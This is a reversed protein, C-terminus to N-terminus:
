PTVNEISKLKTQWKLAIQQIQNRNITTLEGAKLLQKGAVWVDSVQRSNAAYVLHSIPNFIPQCNFADMSVAIIDAAKGVELSGIKNELGLARAGNITAMRLATKASVATPDDAITKGIMAASRMEGFMDLDNNSAGGDTGLCVNIGNDLLMQVPAYGSALKLNSEPCHTVHAGTAKLLELDSEDVQTMHVCQFRSNLIGLKHMRTLPRMDFEKMSGEIESRSEHMHMHIPLQHTQAIDSMKSLVNDTTTYPAHPAMTYSILEHDASQELTSKAKQLYEDENNAYANPFSMVILGISARLGVEKATNALVEPFFFHENFCTTGSRIMEAYAITAGDRIYEESMFKAEAPWIHNNLWDMLALDDALGRMLTMPSHTHANVLGPMIVHDGLEITESASYQQRAEDTPLIAVIKGNKVGVSHNELISGADDIPVLWKACILTDITEM